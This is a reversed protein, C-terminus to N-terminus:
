SYSGTRGAIRGLKKENQRQRPRYTLKWAHNRDQRIYGITAWGKVTNYKCVTVKFQYSQLDSDEIEVDAIHAKGCMKGILKNVQDKWYPDLEEYRKCKNMDRLFTFNSEFNCGAKELGGPQPHRSVQM